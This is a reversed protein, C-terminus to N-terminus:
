RLRVLASQTQASDIASEGGPEHAIGPYSLRRSFMNKGEDALSSFGRKAPYQAGNLLKKKPKKGFSGLEREGGPRIASPESVSFGASNERRPKKVFVEDDPGVSKKRKAAANETNTACRSRWLM